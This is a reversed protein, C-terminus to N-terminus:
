EKRRTRTIGLMERFSTFRIRFRHEELVGKDADAEEVTILGAQISRVYIEVTGFLRDEPMRALAERRFRGREDSAISWSNRSALVLCAAEGRGLFAILGTLDLIDVPDTIRVIRFHRAEIAADLAARQEPRTIEQVVHDPIVFEFGPLRACLDLRDVHILNILVNADAVVVTTPVVTM